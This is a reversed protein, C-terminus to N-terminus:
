IFTFLGPELVPRTSALPPSNKRYNAVRAPGSHGQSWRFYCVGGRINVGPFVVDTEPFDHLEALHGDGLMGNRFDDLGKGGAYWRAPVVMILQRPELAKAQEIFRHYLPSASAGEGGGDNLQYPPNGIIVDF